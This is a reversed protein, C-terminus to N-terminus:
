QHVLWKVDIDIACSFFSWCSLISQGDTHLLFFFASLSLNNGRQQIADHLVSLFHIKQPFWLPFSYLPLRGARRPSIGRRVHEEEMVREYGDRSVLMRLRYSVCWSTCNSPVTHFYVASRQLMGGLYHLQCFLGGGLYLRRLLSRVPFRRYSSSPPFFLVPFLFCPHRTLMWGASITFSSRHLWGGGGSIVKCSKVAPTPWQKTQTWSAVDPYLHKLSSLVWIVEFYFCLKFM